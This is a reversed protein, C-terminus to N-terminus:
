PPAADTLADSVVNREHEPRVVLVSRGDIAAHSAM